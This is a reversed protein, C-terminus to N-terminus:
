QCAKKGAFRPHDEPLIGRADMAVLVAAGLTDALQRLEAVADDRLADSGAIIVPRQLSAIRQKVKAVAATDPSM